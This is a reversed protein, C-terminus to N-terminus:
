PKSEVAETFDDHIQLFNGLKTLTLVYGVSKSPSFLRLFGGIKKLKIQSSIFVGLGSSDIYNVESLDLFIKPKEIAILRDIVDMIAQASYLNIDGIVTVVAGDPFPHPEPVNNVSLKLDKGDYEFDGNSLDIEM